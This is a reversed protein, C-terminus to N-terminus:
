GDALRLLLPQTWMGALPHGDPEAVRDGVSVFGLRHFQRLRGEDPTLAVAARAVAARAADIRVLDLQHALGSRRHLPHVVLRSFVAIPAGLDGFRDGYIEADPAADIASCMSMRAAAVVEGERWVCWHRATEEFEDLWCEIKTVAPVLASWALVRLRGIRQLLAHDQPDAAVVAEM